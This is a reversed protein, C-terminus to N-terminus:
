PTTTKAARFMSLYGNHEGDVVFGLEVYLRRADINAQWVSLRFPVGAADAQDCLRRLVTGGIGRGQYGSLVAIDLLRLESAAWNIWCRGVPVGALEIVQDQADPFEARYQSQQARVQLDVLGAAAAVPLPLRALDPHADLHLSRLFDADGPDTGRLVVPGTM